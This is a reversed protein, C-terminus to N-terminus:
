QFKQVTIILPFVLEIKALFRASISFSAIMLKKRIASDCKKFM